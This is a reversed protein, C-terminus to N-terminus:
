SMHGVVNPSNSNQMLQSQYRYVHWQGVPDSLSDVPTSRMTGPLVTSILRFSRYRIVRFGVDLGLIVPDQQFGGVFNPANLPKEVVVVFPHLEDSTGNGVLSSPVNKRHRPSHYTPHLVFDDINFILEIQYTL